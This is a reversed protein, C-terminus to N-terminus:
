DGFNYCISCHKVYGKRTDRAGRQGSHAVSLPWALILTFSIFNSCSLKDATSLDLVTLLVRSPIQVLKRSHDRFKSHSFMQGKFEYKHCCLSEGQSFLYVLYKVESVRAKTPASSKLLTRWLCRLESNWGCTDGSIEQARLWHRLSGSCSSGTTVRWISAPCSRRWGVGVTQWQRAAAAAGM